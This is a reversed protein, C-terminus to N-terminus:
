GKASKLARQEVTTLAVQDRVYNLEASGPDTWRSPMAFPVMQALALVGKAHPQTMKDSLKPYNTVLCVSPSVGLVPQTVDLNLTEFEEANVLQVPTDFLADLVSPPMIGEANRIGLNSGFDYEAVYLQGMRADLAVCVRRCPNQTKQFECYGLWALAALSSVALVPIQLAFAIGHAVSSATRLGTFAGPGAGFAIGKLDEMKTGSQHLLDQIGAVILSSAPSEQSLSTSFEKQNNDFDSHLLASGLAISAFQSSTEIALITM